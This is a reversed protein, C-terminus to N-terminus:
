KGSSTESLNAKKKKINEAASSVLISSTIIAYQIMPNLYTDIQVNYKLYIQEFVKILNEKAAKNKESAGELLAIDQTKSKYNISLAELGELVLSHMMFLGTAVQKSNNMVAETKQEEQAEKVQEEVQTKHFNENMMNALNKLLEQKTMRKLKNDTQPKLGLEVELKRIDEIIDTKTKKKLDDKKESEMDLEIDKKVEILEEKEELGDHHSSDLRNPTLHEYKESVNQQIKSIEEDLLFDVSQEM